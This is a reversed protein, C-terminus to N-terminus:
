VFFFGKLFGRDIIMFYVCKISIILVRWFSESYASLILNKEFFFCLIRTWFLFVFIRIAFSRWSFCFFKWFFDAAYNSIEKEGRWWWHWLVTQHRCFHLIIWRLTLSFFIWSVNVFYHVKVPLRFLLLLLLPALPFFVTLSLSFFICFFLNRTHKIDTTAVLSFIKAFNENLLCVAFSFLSISNITKSPHALFCALFVLDM